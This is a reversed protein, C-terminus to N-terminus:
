FKAHCSMKPLGAARSIEKTMNLCLCGGNGSRPWKRNKEM